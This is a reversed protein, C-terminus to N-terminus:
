GHVAGRGLRFRAHGVCHRRGEGDWGWWLAHYSGRPLLDLAPAPEGSAAAFDDPFRVVATRQAERRAAAADIPEPEEAAFEGGPGHVECAWGHLEVPGRVTLVISRDGSGVGTEWGPRIRLARRGVWRLVSAIPGVRGRRRDMRNVVRPSRVAM